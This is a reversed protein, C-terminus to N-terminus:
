ATARTCNTSAWVEALVALAVPQAVQAAGGQERRWGGGAWRSPLGEHLAHAPQQQPAARWWAAETVRGLSM